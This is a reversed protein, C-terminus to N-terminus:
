IIKIISKKYSNDEVQLSGSYGGAENVYKHEIKIKEKVRKLYWEYEIDIHGIDLAHYGQKSLDYALVTATPGLAILVLNDKSQKLCNNLIEKYKDFANKAPCIIRKVLKAEKFLDNGVGMRTQEGEVVLINKNRWISKFSEIQKDCIRKDEIDIYFRTIQSSYYYKEKNIIKSIKIVNKSYYKNWFDRAFKNYNNFDRKFIKPIAVLINPNEDKDILIEQLRHSLELNFQQFGIEKGFILNFEGDGFRCISMGKKIKEITEKDSAIKFVNFLKIKSKYTKKIRSLKLQIM